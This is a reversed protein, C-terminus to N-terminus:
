FNIKIKEIKKTGDKISELIWDGTENKYIIGSKDAADFIFVNELGTIHMTFVLRNMSSLIDYGDKTARANYTNVLNVPTINDKLEAENEIQKENSEEQVPDNLTQEIPIDQEITAEENEKNEEEEHKLVVIEAKLKEIEQKAEEAQKVVETGLGQDLIRDNPIYHYNMGEFSEFARRIAIDYARILDKEKTIGEKSIFVTINNCDRLTVQGKTRFTGKATIESKLALCYNSKLDAPIPEGDIIADFGHKEFLYKVMRNLDYENVENQFHFQKEIIIYKYDNINSQTNGFTIAFLALIISSFLKNM